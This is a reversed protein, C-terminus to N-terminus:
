GWRLVGLPLLETRYSGYDLARALSPHVYPIHFGELYNDCYLAWNAAVHYERCGSPLLRADNWPLWDIRERVPALLDEIAHEPRLSAFWFPGWDHLQTRPLDDSRSPFDEAGEFEPMSLMRGDLGFRRGHYGCRIGRAKCPREVLINARHTCVNSMCHMAGSEDRTLLLPEDLCCPLM